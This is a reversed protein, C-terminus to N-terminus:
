LRCLRLKLAGEFVGLRLLFLEFGGVLLQLRDILFILRRQFLELCRLFLQLRDIFFELRDILLELLPEFVEALGVVVELIEHRGGVHGGEKDVALEHDLEVRRRESLEEVDHRAVLPARDCTVCRRLSAWIRPSMWCTM